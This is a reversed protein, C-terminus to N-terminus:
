RPNNHRSNKDYIIEEEPKFHLEQGAPFVIILARKDKRMFVSTGFTIVDKMDVLEYDPFRPKKNKKM